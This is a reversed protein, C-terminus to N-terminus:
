PIMASEKAFSELFDEVDRMDFKYGMKELFAVEGKQSGGIGRGDWLEATALDDWKVLGQGVEGGFFYVILRQKRKM